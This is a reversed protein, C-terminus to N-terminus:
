PSREIKRTLSDVLVHLREALGHYKKHVTTSTEIFRDVMTQMEAKHTAQLDTIQATFREVAEHHRERERNLVRFMHVAATIGVLALIGLPGYIKLAQAFTVEM